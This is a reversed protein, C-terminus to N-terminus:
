ASLRNAKAIAAPLEKILRGTNRATEESSGAIKRQVDDGPGFQLAQAASFTGQNQVAKDVGKKAEKAQEQFIDEPAGPKKIANPSAQSIAEEAQKNAADLKAQAAAAKANRADKAAQAESNRRNIERQRDEELTKNIDKARQDIQGQRQYRENFRSDLIGQTASDSAANQASTQDDIKQM